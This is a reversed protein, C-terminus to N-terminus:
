CPCNLTIAGVPSGFYATDVQYPRNDKVSRTSINLITPRGNATAPSLAPLIGARGTKSKVSNSDHTRVGTGPTRPRGPRGDTGIDRGHRYPRGDRDASQQTSHGNILIEMPRNPIIAGVLARRVALGHGRRLPARCFSPINFKHQETPVLETADERPPCDINETALQYPLTSSGAPAPSEIGGYRFIWM